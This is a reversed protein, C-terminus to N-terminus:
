IRIDNLMEFVKGAYAPRLKPDIACFFTQEIILDYKGKHKFFDEHILHDVPYEKVRHHFQHLPSIAWDLLFVSTFGSRFLYEAEYANGSGPILIKLSKNTLQDFYNKLPFSVSGIDWGTESKLYRTNWSDSTLEM